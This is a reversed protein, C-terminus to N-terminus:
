CVGILLALVVSQMWLVSRILAKNIARSVQRCLELPSGLCHGTSALVLPCAVFVCDVYM